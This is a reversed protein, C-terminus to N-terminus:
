KAAIAKEIELNLKEDNPAVNSEYHEIVKGDKGVLFKNFNWSVPKPKSGHKILYSYLPCIGDGKVVTKAMMPFTVMYNKTCFQKIEANSGPEQAGFENAPVGIVTFGKNAYKAQLQQLGTYQSTYGCQSAVNVILLVQNKHQALPYPKGDIGDLTLDHVSNVAPEGSFCFSASFLFAVVCFLRLTGFM